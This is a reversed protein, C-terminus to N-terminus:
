DEEQVQTKGYTRITEVRTRQRGDWLRKIFEETNIGPYYSTLIERVHDKSIDSYRYYTSYKITSDHFRFATGTMGNKKLKDIISKRLSVMQRTMRQLKYYEAVLEKVNEADM